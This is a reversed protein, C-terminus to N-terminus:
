GTAVRNNRSSQPSTAAQCRPGVPAARGSPQARLNLNQRPLVLWPTMGSARWRSGPGLAISAPWRTSTEAGGHAILIPPTANAHSQGASTALGGHFTAYGKVNEAKGSRALELTAAGGFCHGMVVADGGGLKRAMALGALILTRM